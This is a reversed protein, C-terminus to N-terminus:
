RSRRGCDHRTLRRGRGSFPCANVTELQQKAKWNKQYRRSGLRTNYVNSGTGLVSFQEVSTIVKNTKHNVCQITETKRDHTSSNNHPVTSPYLHNLRRLKPKKASPERSVDALSISTVGATILCLLRHTFSMGLTTGHYRM